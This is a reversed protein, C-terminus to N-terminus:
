DPSYFFQFILVKFNWIGCEKEVLLVGGEEEDLAGV